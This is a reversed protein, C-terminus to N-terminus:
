VGIRKCLRSIGWIGSISLLGLTPSFKFPVSASSDAYVFNDMGFSDNGFNIRRLAVTNFSDGDIILGFFSLNRTVNLSFSGGQILNGTLRTAGNVSVSAFNAGFATIPSDFTATFFSSSNTLGNIIPSGDIDLSASDLPPVDIKQKGPISTIGNLTFDGVDLSTDVFSTDVTYSNFTEESFNGGVAAEWSARDSFASVSVAKAPASITLVLTIVAVYAGFNNSKVM